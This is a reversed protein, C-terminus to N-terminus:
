FRITSQLVVRNGTAAAIIAADTLQTRQRATGYAGPNAVWQRRMEYNLMIRVDPSYFYQMGLTWTRAMREDYPSNPLKDLHDYRLDAEWKPTFRWGSDLYYGRAENSSALAMEDVPEYAAGGADYFPPVVAYYIMGRAQILEGGLRLGNNNYRAGVGRRIRTYANQLYHRKGTQNWVYFTVDQRNVGHGGFIYSAAVRGSVDYNGNDRLEIGNGDSLMLAYSYQWQGRDTWDYVELGIDRFAGLPGSALAGVCQNPTTCVVGGPQGTVTMQTMPVGLMPVEPRGSYYPSMFRENLLQDSVTTLDAYASGVEGQMAEEGLPLRGLGLRFRTVSTNYTVTADTLVPHYRYSTPAEKWETLANEGFEALVYYNVKDDTGPVIGRVGPRARAMQAYNQHTFDPGVLNTLPLHGNYSTMAPKPAAIGEVPGGSNHTYRPQIFGWFHAAKAGPQENNEIELWNTAHSAQSLAGLLAFVFLKAKM